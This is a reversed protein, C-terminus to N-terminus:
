DKSVPKLASTLFNSTANYGAVTSDLFAFRKRLTDEYNRLRAELNDYEDSIGSLDKNLDAQRKTLTGDSDNYNDILASLQSVIGDSSAFLQGLEGLNNDVKKALTEVGSDLTGIGVASIELKGFKDFSVGIDSLSQIDGTMSGVTNSLINSLQGKMARLDSDFALKGFKPSALVDMSDALANFSNVFENVLDIAVQNNQSIDLTAAGAVSVKNAVVTVDEITNKFENSASTVTNGAGDIEIIADQANRTITANTALNDLAADNTSVSLENATGTNNSTYSLYTGSDSNVLSATVGFNGSQANIKDRITSLDDAADIAVDFSDAGAAFTLTGTGVTSASSAFDPTQIRTAAALQLVSVEFSGNSAFGNTTVSIDDNGVNLVQENFNEVSKLKDAVSQFSALASKFSGLGSLEATIREEKKQLRIETPVSEATVFAEIISELDLGSGIGASTINM